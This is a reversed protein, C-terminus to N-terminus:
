TSTVYKGRIAGVHGDMICIPDDLDIEILDGFQEIITGTGDPDRFVVRYGGDISENIFCIKEAILGVISIRRASELMDCYYVYGYPERYCSAELFLLAEARTKLSLIAEKKPTFDWPSPIYEAPVEVPFDCLMKERGIDTLVYGGSGHQVEGYGCCIGLCHGDIQNKSRLCKGINGAGAFTFSVLSKEKRISTIKGVKIIGDVLHLVRKGLINEDIPKWAFSDAMLIEAGHKVIAMITGKHVPM